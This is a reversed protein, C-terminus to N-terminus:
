RSHCEIIEDIIFVKRKRSADLTRWLYEAIIGLSINTLGFGIMLVAILTPWGPNLDKFFVTRGVVYLAWLFGVGALIIGTLSVLRIPTYSFAVFSDIFLKVKKAVTWKSKGIKRAQKDYLISACKFGLTLIQLFVSSNAEINQNLEQKVKENFSSFSVKKNM